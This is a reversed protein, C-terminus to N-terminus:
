RRGSNIHMVNVLHRYRYRAIEHTVGIRNTAYMHPERRMVRADHIDLEKILVSQIDILRGLALDFIEVEALIEATHVQIVQSRDLHQFIWIDDIWVNVIGHSHNIGLQHLLASELQHYIIGIATRRLYQWRKEITKSALHDHQIVARVFRTEGTRHFFYLFVQLAQCRNGRCQVILHAYADIWSPFANRYNIIPTTDQVSCLHQSHHSAQEQAFM